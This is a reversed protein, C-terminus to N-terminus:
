ATLYYLVCTTITTAAGPTAEREQGNQWKLTLGTAFSIPDRIFFRYARIDKHGTADYKYVLGYFDTCQPATGVWYFSGLFFDETGSAEYDPVGTDGDVCVRVDGELYGFDATNAFDMYVSYLAGGGSIDAFTSWALAGVSASQYSAYLRSYKGLGTPNQNLYGINWWLGADVDVDNVVEIKIGDTYPIDIYRNWSKGIYTQSIFRTDYIGSAEGNFFIDLPVSIAPLVAGDYYVNLTMGQIKDRTIWFQKITGYATKNLPGPAEFLVATNGWNYTFVYQYQTDALARAYTWVRMGDVIIKLTYWTDAVPTIGSLRYTSAPSFLNAFTITGDYQFGMVKCTGPASQYLVLGCVWLPHAGHIKIDLTLIYKNDAPPTYETCYCISDFNGGTTAQVARGSPHDSAVVQYAPTWGVTNDWEDWGTPLASLADDTFDNTYLVTGDWETVRVNAFSDQGSWAWFGIQGVAETATSSRMLNIVGASDYITTGVNGLNDEQLSPSTISTAYLSGITATPANLSTITATAANLNTVHNQQVYLTDLPDGQCGALVLLGILGLSIFLRKSM